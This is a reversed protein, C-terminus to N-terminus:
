DDGGDGDGDDGDASADDTASSSSANEFLQLSKLIGAAALAIVTLLFSQDWISSKYKYPQSNHPMEM